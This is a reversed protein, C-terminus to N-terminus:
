LLHFEIEVVVRVNVPHGAKTGPTFKWKKLAEVATRDEETNLGRVIRFAEPNGEVTVVTSIKVTGEVFAEKSNPSFEPEVYHLLKPAKVDGGPEYVAEEDKGSKPQSRKDSSSNEQGTARVANLVGAMAVVWIQLLNRRSARLYM